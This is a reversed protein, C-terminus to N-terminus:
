RYLQSYLAVLKKTQKEITMSMALKHATQGYKRALVPSNILKTCSESFSRITNKAQIGTIKDKALPSIDADIFIIPKREIAAENLVLGQTDTMSAFCFIDAAKFCAFTKDRDLMGTFIINETLNLESALGKLDGSYPGDGVVMLKANPNKDIIKPMSKIILQINKEKGLRGVFLLLPDDDEINFVKRPKFNTEIKTEELDIGTPLVHVSDFKGYDNLSKEMKESPVIVMSCNKYFLGVSEVILKQNWKKLSKSPKLSPILEKYKDASKMLAPALLIGVLIGLMIKKYIKAYQDIDTHHTVVTPIDDDKAIRMGLMGVQAPTHIHIIDLNHSKVEKIIASTFPMTDRHDEYWISPFSRFRVIYDPDPKDRNPSEPCYIVVEHGLKILERAFLDVSVAVGDVQPYYRDTFFGIKM